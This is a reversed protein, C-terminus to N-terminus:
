FFLIHQRKPAFEYRKSYVGKLLSGLVMKVTVERSLTKTGKLIQLILQFESMQLYGSLTLVIYVYTIIYIFLFWLRNIVNISPDLAFVTNALSIHQIWAFIYQNYLFIVM